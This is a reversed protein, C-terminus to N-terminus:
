IGFFVSVLWRIGALSLCTASTFIAFLIGTDKSYDWAWMLLGLAGVVLTLIGVCALWVIVNLTVM